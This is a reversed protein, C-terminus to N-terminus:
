IVSRLTVNVAERRIQISRVFTSCVINLVCPKKLVNLNGLFFQLILESALQIPTQLVSIYSKLRGKTKLPNTTMFIDTFTDTKTLIKHYMFM